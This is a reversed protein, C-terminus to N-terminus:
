HGSDRASHIETAEHGQPLWLRFVGGIGSAEAWIRGAHAEAIQRCISLGQGLRQSKTSYFPEFVQQAQKPNLGPGCDLVSLQVGHQMLTMSELVVTLERSAPTASEMADIANHLLNVLIQEIQIRDILVRPLESAIRTQVTVHHTQLEHQMLQLVEIVSISLDYEHKDPHDKEVFRHLRRILTAAREGQAAIEQMSEGLHEFDARGTAIMRVSAQARSVIATLPQNVEHALGIALQGMSHLRTAHALESLRQAAEAEAQKRLSIDRLIGTFSARGPLLVEAVALDLPFLSGDKRQGQVERNRGVVTGSRATQYRQLYTDHQERDPSAMLMSVNNGIAESASYGFMQEAARNFSEINGRGDISVIGEVATDLISQYREVAEILAAQQQWDEVRRGLPHQRRDRLAEAAEDGGPSVDILVGSVIISDVVDEVRAMTSYCCRLTLQQRNRGLWVVVQEPISEGARLREFLEQMQIQHEPTQLIQWIPKGIVEAADYGILQLCSRNLALLTGAADTTAVLSRSNLM